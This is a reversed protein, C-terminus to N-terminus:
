RQRRKKGTRRLVRRWHIELKITYREPKSWNTKHITWSKRYSRPTGATGATGAVAVAVVEEVAVAVVEEEEVAVAVVEEVAEVTGDM